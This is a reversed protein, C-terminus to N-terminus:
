CFTELRFGRAALAEMAEKLPRMSPADVLTGTATLRPHLMIEVSGAGVDEHSDVASLMEDVAGFCDVKRLGSRRLQGNVYRFFLWRVVSRGRAFTQAPRVRQIGHECAIASVVPLLSPFTHIHNHSDLHGLRLGQRRMLAIQARAEEAAAAKDSASLRRYYSLRHQVTFSGDRCFSSKRIRETLPRGETFNLHLGIRADLRRQQAAQCAEEFGSLNVILSAHSVAGEDFGRLVAANTESSLGFDDATAILPRSVTM